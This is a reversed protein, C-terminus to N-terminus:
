AKTLRLDRRHDAVGNCNARVLVAHLPWARWEVLTLALLVSFFPLAPILMRTETAYLFPVALILAAAWLRWAGSRRLALLALPILLFVPGVISGVRAGHVALDIPLRPYWAHM